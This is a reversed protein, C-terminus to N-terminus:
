ITVTQFSSSSPQTPSDSTEDERGELKAKRREKELRSALKQKALCCKKYRLGSGCPCPSNKQIPKDNITLKQVREEVSEEAPEAHHRSKTRQVRRGPPDLSVSGHTAITDDISGAAELEAGEKTDAKDYVLNVDVRKPPSGKKRVSNYHNDHRHFSVALDPGISKTEGHDVSYAFMDASYVWIKRRSFLISLSMQVFFCTLM